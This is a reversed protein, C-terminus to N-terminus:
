NGWNGSKQLLLISNKNSFYFKFFFFAFVFFCIPELNQNSLLVLFFFGFHHLSPEKGPSHFAPDWGDISELNQPSALTAVPPQPAGADGFM